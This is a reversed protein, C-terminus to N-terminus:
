GLNLERVKFKMKQFNEFSDGLNWIYGLVAIGDFPLEVLMGVNELEIGGLAFVKTQMNKLTGLDKFEELRGTYGSKSISDFVPSLFCYDYNLNVMRLEVTSHISTSVTLGKAKAAAVYTKENWFRSKTRFNSTLHIGKLKFEDVLNHHQHIVLKHHFENPIEKIYNRVAEISTKPKRVHLCELGNELMKTCFFSEKDIFTEPTIVILKM